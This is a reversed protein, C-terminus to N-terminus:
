DGPLCITKISMEAKSRAMFLSIDVSGYSGKRGQQPSSKERGSQGSTPKELVWQKNSAGGGGYKMQDGGPDGQEQRSLGANTASGQIVTNRALTEKSPDGRELCLAVGRQRSVLAFASPTHGKIGGSDAESM